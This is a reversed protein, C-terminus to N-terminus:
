NASILLAMTEKILQSIRDFENNLTVLEEELSKIEERLYTIEIQETYGGADLRELKLLAKRLNDEANVVNNQLIEKYISINDQFEKSNTGSIGYENYSILNIISNRINILDNKHTIMASSLATLESNDSVELLRANLQDLWVDIQEISALNQNYENILGSYKTQLKNEAETFISLLFQYDNNTLLDDYYSVANEAAQMKYWLSSYFNSQYVIDINDYTNTFCNGYIKILYSKIANNDVVVAESSYPVSVTYAVYLELLGGFDANNSLETLRDEVGFLYTSYYKWDYIISNVGYQGYSGDADLKSIANLLTSLNTLLTNNDLDISSLELLPRQTTGDNVSFSEGSLEMRIRAFNERVALLLTNKQTTTPPTYITLYYNLADIASQQADVAEGLRYALAKTKFNSVASTWSLLLEVYQNRLSNRNNVRTTQAVKLQEKEENSLILPQIKSRITPFLGPSILCQYFTVNGYGFLNDDFYYRRGNSVDDKKPNNPVYGANILQPNAILIKGFQHQTSLPVTVETSFGSSIENQITSNTSIIRQKAVQLISISDRVPKEKLANSQIVVAISDIMRETLTIESEVTKLQSQWTNIDSSDAFHFFLARANRAKELIQELTKIQTEINKRESNEDFIGMGYEYDLLKDKRNVITAQVTNITNSITTLQLKYGDIIVQEAPTLSLKAAEILKLANQYDTEAKATNMLATALLAKHQEIALSKAMELTAMQYELDSIALATLKTKEIFLLSDMKLDIEARKIQISALQNKLNQEDALALTLAAEANKLSTEAMKYLIEAQILEKKAQRLDYIGEPEVNELCSSLVSATIVLFIIRTKKM